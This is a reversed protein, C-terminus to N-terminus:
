HGVKVVAPCSKNNKKFKKTCHCFQSLLPKGNIVIKATLFQLYVDHGKFPDVKTQQKRIGELIKLIKSHCRCKFHKQGHKTVPYGTGWNLGLSAPHATFCSHNTKLSKRRRSSAATYLCIIARLIHHM